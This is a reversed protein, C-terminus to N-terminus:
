CMLKRRMKYGLLQAQDVWKIAWTFYSPVLPPVPIRGAAKKLSEQFTGALVFSRLLALSGLHRVYVSLNEDLVRVRSMPLNGEVFTQSHRHSGLVLDHAKKDDLTKLWSKRVAWNNSALRFGGSRYFKASNFNKYTHKNWCLLAADDFRDGLDSAEPAFWDDDDVPLIVADEDGAYWPTFENATRIVECGTAALNARAIKAIEHRYEFFSMTFCKKWVELLDQAVMERLEAQPKYLDNAQAKFSEENMQLYDPCSRVVIVVRM